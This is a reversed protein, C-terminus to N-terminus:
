KQEKDHQTTKEFGTKTKERVQAEKKGDNANAIAYISGNQMAPHNSYRKSVVEWDDTKVVTKGFGVVAEPHNGGVLRVDGDELPFRIGSPLKCFVNTTKATEAM